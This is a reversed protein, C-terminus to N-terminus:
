ILLFVTKANILHHCMDNPPINQDKILDKRLMKGRKESKTKNEREKRKYKQKEREKM